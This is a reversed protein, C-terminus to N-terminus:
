DLLSTLCPAVLATTTARYLATYDRQIAPM